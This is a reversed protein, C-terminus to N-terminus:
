RSAKAAPTAASPQKSAAGGSSSAQPAEKSPTPTEEPPRADVQLSESLSDGPDLVVRTKAPLPSVLELESGLDNLVQVPVFHIKGEQTVSAIRSGNADELLASAPIRQPAQNALTDFIVRGFMGPLLARDKNPVHLEVERTRTVPDMAGAIRQVTASFTQGAREQIELHARMGPKVATFYAQPLYVFVRLVDERAIEFLATDRNTSPADAKVLTGAYVNRASIVGSYPARIATYDQLTQAHQAGAAGSQAGAQASSLGASAGSLSAQAAEVAHGAVELTARAGSLGAQASGLDLTSREVESEATAMDAEAATLGTQANTQADRATEADQVTVFGQTLLSEVRERNSSALKAASQARAYRAKAAALALKAQKLKFAASKLGNDAQQVTAAAAQRQAKAQELAASTRALEAAAVRAAETSKRADAVAQRQQDALEPAALTALLQGAEVHQGLEVLVKSVYGSARPDIRAYTYAQLTGPLRLGRETPFSPLVVTVRLKEQHQHRAEAALRQHNALRPLGGVLALTLLTIGLRSGVGVPRGTSPAGASPDPCPTTPSPDPAHTELM